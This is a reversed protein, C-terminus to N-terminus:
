NFHFAAPSDSAALRAVDALIRSNLDLALAVYESADRTL